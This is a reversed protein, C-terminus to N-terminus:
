MAGVGVPMIAHFKGAVLTEDAAKIHKWTHRCNFSGFVSATVSAADAPQQACAPRRRFFFCVVGCRSFARQLQVAPLDSDVGGDACLTLNDGLLASYVYHLRTQVFTVNIIYCRSM